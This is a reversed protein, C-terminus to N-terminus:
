EAHIAPAAFKGVPLSHNGGQQVARGDPPLYLMLGVFALCVLIAILGASYATTWGQRSFYFFIGGIISVGLASATQQFTSYVGAAAGAYQAPVSKTAIGLLSPLVFGNGLGWAGM